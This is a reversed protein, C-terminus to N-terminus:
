LVTIVTIGRRSSRLINFHVVDRRALEIERRVESQHRRRLFTGFDSRKHQVKVNEKIRRPLFHGFTGLNLDDFFAFRDDGFKPRNPTFWSCPPSLTNGFIYASDCAETCTRLTYWCMPFLCQEHQTLGKPHCFTFKM